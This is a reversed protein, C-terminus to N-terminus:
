SDAPKKGKKYFFHYHIIEIVSLLSLVGVLLNISRSPDSWFAYFNIVGGLAFVWLSAKYSAKSNFREHRRQFFPLGEDVAKLKRVFLGELYWAISFLAYGTSLLIAGLVGAQAAVNLSTYFAYFAPSIFRGAIFIVLIISVCILTEWLRLKEFKQYTEEDVRYGIAKRDARIFYGGERIIPTGM